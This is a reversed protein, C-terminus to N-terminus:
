VQFNKHKRLFGVFTMGIGALLIAGPAPVVVSNPTSSLDCTVSLTSSSLYVSDSWDFDVVYDRCWGQFTFLDNQFTIEANASTVTDVLDSYGLLNFTTSNGSLLGLEQDMFTVMVYDTKEYGGDGDFDWWVNDIGCGTITLAAATVDCTGDFGNLTHTWSVSTNDTWSQNEYDWLLGDSGFYHTDTFTQAAGALGVCVLLMILTFIKIRDM